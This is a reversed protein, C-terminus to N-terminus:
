WKTRESHTFKIVIVNKAFFNKYFFIQKLMILVQQVSFGTCKIAGANLLTWLNVCNRFTHKLDFKDYNFDCQLIYINYCLIRENWKTTSQMKFCQFRLKNGNRFVVYLIHTYHMFISTLVQWSLIKWERMKALQWHM